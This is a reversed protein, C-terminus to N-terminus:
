LATQDGAGELTFAAWYYPTLRPGFEKIVDRKAAALATDVSEHASLHAYFQRMLVQTTADEIPWLTSVVTRAGALLFARSLTAIGEEGGIPGIATDCASLVVVEANLKLGAVESAQLLGDEGAAPDSLLILAAHEPQATSAVAHVALHIIRYSELPQSKFAAETAATGLLLVNKSSHIAESGLIVESQSQPLNLLKQSEAGRTASINKMAASDYPVAGVGLFGGSAPRRRANARLLELSSASGAYSVVKTQVLYRGSDDPLADFPLLHLQGDRVIILKPKDTAEHIPQILSRYLSQALADGPQRAKIKELYARVDTEIQSGTTLTVIRAADRTIVLCYSHPDAVVYELVATSPPLSKQVAALEVRAGPKTKQISVEPTIWSAQEVMFLQDRLRQVDASSRAQMLQLRIRSARKSAEKARPNAVSGSSLLDATVRGRAREILDFAKKPDHFHDAFQPRYVDSAAAILATKDVVGEVKGVMSDVFAAARNLTQNAEKYKHQAVQLRGLATLREPLAIFDGRLQASQAAQQTHTEAGRLDNRNLAIDALMEHVTALTDLYGRTKAIQLAQELSTTAQAPERKLLEIKAINGLSAAELTTLHRERAFALMENALNQAAPLDGSGILAMLKARYAVDPYGMDSDSKAVAITKDAYPIAQTYLKGLSLGDALITLIMMEGPKDGMSHAALLATGVRRRAGEVDGNYYAAIGLQANARNEWQRDGLQKALRRVEEWDRAMAAHEAESDFDGKVRLCFMRLRPDIKLEPRTELDDKLQVILQPIAAGRDLTTRLRGLRAEFAAKENHELAALREAAAFEPGADVWNYANALRRARDLHEQATDAPRALLPLALAACTLYTFLRPYSKM